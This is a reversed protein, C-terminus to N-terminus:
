CMGCCLNSFYRTYQRDRGPSHLGEVEATVTVVTSGSGLEPHCTTSGLIDTPHIFRVDTDQVLTGLNIQPLLLPCFYACAPLPV